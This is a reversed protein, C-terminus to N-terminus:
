VGFFVLTAMLLDSVSVGLFVLTAMLVSEVFWVVLTARVSASDQRMTVCQPQRGLLTANVLQFLCMQLILLMCKM